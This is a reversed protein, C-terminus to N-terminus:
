ATPRLAPDAIMAGIEAALRRPRRFGTYDIATGKAGCAGVLTLTGGGAAVAATTEDWPLLRVATVTRIRLGQPTATVRWALMRLAVSGTGLLGLTQAAIRWWGPTGALDDLVVGTLLLAALGGMLWAGPGGRWSTRPRPAPLAPERGHAEEGADGQHDGDERM